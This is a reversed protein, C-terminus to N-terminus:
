RVIVFSPVTGTGTVSVSTFSREGEQCSTFSLLMTGNDSPFNVREGEQRAAFSLPINGDDSLLTFYRGERWGAAFFSSM